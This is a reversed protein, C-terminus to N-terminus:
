GGTTGDDRGSETITAARHRLHELVRMTARIEDEDLGAVLEGRLEAAVSMIHDLTRHAKATLYIRNRRRDDACPRREIWGDAALRDLLRVVTPPEIGTRAALERQTLGEGGHFINVLTRWKAQSLGLPQLRVDLAQRWQQATEALMIGLGDTLNPDPQPPRTM